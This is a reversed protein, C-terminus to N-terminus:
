GLGDPGIHMPVSTVNVAKGVKPPVLGCNWHCNFPTFTPVLECVHDDDVSLLPSIIVTEITEFETQTFTKLATEGGRTMTTLGKAAGETDIEAAGGPLMQAPSLTVKVAM